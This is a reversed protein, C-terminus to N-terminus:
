PDDDKDSEDSQVIDVERKRRDDQVEKFTSWTLLLFAGIILLGGIIAGPSL